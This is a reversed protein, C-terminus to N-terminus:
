LVSVGAGIAAELVLLVLFGDMILALMAQTWNRRSGGLERSHFQHSGCVQSNFQAM